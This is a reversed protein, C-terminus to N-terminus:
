AGHYTSTVTKRDMDAKRDTDAFRAHGGMTLDRVEARPETQLGGGYMASPRQRGPRPSPSTTLVTELAQQPRCAASGDGCADVFM